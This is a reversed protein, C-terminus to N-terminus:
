SEWENLSWDYELYDISLGGKELFSRDEPKLYASVFNLVAGEAESFGTFKKETGYKKVFDNGFWKFSPSLYVTKEARDIRFKDPNNLFRTTQSDLQASLDAGTYPEKRLAPCGMSACNLAMHVRPEEFKARLTDHEISDLTMEQRMVSFTLKDWVGPIQRISNEPFRLSRFFSSKIPYNNLIAELTLSNYANIWFAIKDTREWQEYEKPDLKALSRTFSDLKQRNAKLKEYSVLGRENVYRSLIEAYDAYSFSARAHATSVAFAPISQVPLVSLFAWVLIIMALPNRENRKHTM